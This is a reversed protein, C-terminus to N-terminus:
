QTIPNNGESTPVMAPGFGILSWIFDIGSSSFSPSAEYYPTRPFTKIVRFKNVDDPQIQLDGGLPNKGLSEKGLSATSGPVQVIQVDDGVITGNYQGGTGDLEYNVQMDLTANESIYGEVYYENESKNQPRVGYQQYAFVAKAPIPHGNFNYGNFMKYTESVLYSHGYLDGDIVSFRSFPMTLPAEWYHIPSNTPNQTTTDKTMNYVRLLGAKPVAVFIFNQWFYISGDTFDYKNMDNVISFSLDAMQPTLVVNDVRGLSNVIPEFSVFIVDNKNKGVFAQSLAGQLGTTKLRKLTPTTVDLNIITSVPPSANTEVVPTSLVEQSVTYWQNIGASVYLLDEQIVFARPPANAILVIGDGTIRTTRTPAHTSFDKYNNIKSVFIQNAILSGLYLQQDFTQILDDEFDFPLGVISSNPTEEVEQFVVDGAVGAGTPNPSVGTLITSNWGGTAQFAVGNIIVSHTGANYFGEQAWTKTGQKTITNNSTTLIEMLAGTGSGGTVPIASAPSYGTGSNQLSVAIIAGTDVETIAIRCGTGAGTTATINVTAGTGTGGATAVNSANSYGTGPNLLTVSTIAGSGNVTNVTFSADAGGGTILLIDTPVYGTGANNVAVTIVQGGTQSNVTAVDSSLAYHQGQTRLSITLVGGGGDVTAVRITGGVGPDQFVTLIDGATYGTGATTPVTAVSFIAGFDSVSTVQVTADANGGTLTLIDGAIYNKGGFTNPLVMPTTTISAVAGSVGSVAALTTVGGSWERIIPKGNVFLMRSQSNINDWWNTFNFNVSDLGTLLDIWEVTGDVWVYRFQLKGNNGADLFGARLHRILGISMEYDYASLIPASM